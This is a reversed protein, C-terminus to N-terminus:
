GESFTDTRKKERARGATEADVVEEAGASVTPNHPTM